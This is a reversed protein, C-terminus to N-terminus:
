RSPGTSSATTAEVAGAPDTRATVSVTGVPPLRSLARGADAASLPGAGNLFFASPTEASSRVGRLRRQRM